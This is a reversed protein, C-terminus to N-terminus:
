KIDIPEELEQSWKAFDSAQEKKLELNALKILYDGKNVLPFKNAEIIIGDIPATIQYNQKSGFPDNIFALIDGKKIYTGVKKLLKCIGSGPSQVWLSEKIINVIINKTKKKEQLMGLHRMVRVIGNVGIRVYNSDIRWAEGSKFLLLPKKPEVHMKQMMGEKSDSHIIVHSQFSKAMELAEPLNIDTIIQPCAEHYQDATHLDIFHTALSFIDKNLIYALRAAFTGTESGPFNKELDRNDPLNRTQSLLGFVNVVPIVILTGQLYKLLNLNLLKQVIGIGNMEDGHLAACVMLCPGENKGHIVHIPIHMPICSYLEPTPLALTIKEGPNINTDFIKLNINKKAM